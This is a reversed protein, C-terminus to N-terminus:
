LRRKRKAKIKMGGQAPHVDPRRPDMAPSFLSLAEVGERGTVIAHEMGPPILLTDGAKVSVRKGDLRMTARGKIVFIAEHTLRHYISPTVARPRLREHILSVGFKDAALPLPRMVLSGFAQRRLRRLPIKM